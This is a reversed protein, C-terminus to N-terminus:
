GYAGSPTEVQAQQPATGRWGGWIDEEGRETANRSLDITGTPTTPRRNLRLEAVTVRAGIAREEATDTSRGIGRIQQLLGHLDVDQQVEHLAPNPCTVQHTITRAENARSRPIADEVFGLACRRRVDCSCPMRVFATEEVLGHCISCIVRRGREDRTARTSSGRGGRAPMHRRAVIMTEAMVTPTSTQRSRLSNHDSQM